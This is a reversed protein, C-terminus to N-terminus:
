FLFFGTKRGHFGVITARTEIHLVNKLTDVINQHFIFVFIFVFPKYAELPSTM